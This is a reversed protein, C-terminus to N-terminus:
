SSQEELGVVFDDLKKIRHQHDERTFKWHERPSPTKKVGTYGRIITHFPQIRSHQNLATDDTLPVLEDYRQGWGESRIKICHESKALVLGVEWVQGSGKFDVYQGVKPWDQIM